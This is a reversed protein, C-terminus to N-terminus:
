VPVDQSDSRPAAVSKRRARGTGTGRGAGGWGPLAERGGPTHSGPFRPPRARASCGTSGGGTCCPRRRAPLAGREVGRWTGVQRTRSAQLPCPCPWLSCFRGPAAPGAPGRGRVTPAYPGARGGVAAGVVSVSPRITAYRGARPRAARPPSPPARRPASRRPNILNEGRRCRCGAARGRARCRRCRAGRSEETPMSAMSASGACGACGASGGRVRMRM